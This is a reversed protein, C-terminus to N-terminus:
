KVATRAFPRETLRPISPKLDLTLVPFLVVSKKGATFREEVLKRIDVVIGEM